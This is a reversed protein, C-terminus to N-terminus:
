LNGFVSISELCIFDDRQFRQALSEAKEWVRGIIEGTKDSLTLTLFPKGAKTRAITKQKVLFTSVVKQNEKINKIFVTKM